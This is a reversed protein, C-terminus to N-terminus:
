HSHQLSGPPGPNSSWTPGSQMVVAVYRHRRGSPRNLYRDCLGQLTGLDASFMFGHLGVGECAIPPRLVQRGGREVYMPLNSRAM